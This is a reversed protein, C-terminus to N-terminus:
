LISQATWANENIALALSPGFGLFESDLEEGEEVGRAKQFSQFASDLCLASYRLNALSWGGEVEPTKWIKIWFTSGRRRKTKM